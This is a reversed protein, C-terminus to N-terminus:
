GPLTPPGALRHNSRLVLPRNQTDVSAGRVGAPSIQHGQKRLENSVRVWGFAPQEFALRGMAEEIEPATRNRPDPVVLALRADARVIARQIQRYQLALNGSEHPKRVSGWVRANRGRPGHAPM